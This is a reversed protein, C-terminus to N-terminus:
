GSFFSLLLWLNYISNLSINIIKQACFCLSWSTLSHSSPLNHGDAASAVRLSPFSNKITIKCYKKMEQNKVKNILKKTM